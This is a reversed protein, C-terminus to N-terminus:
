LLLLERREEGGGAKMAPWLPLSFWLVAAGVVVVRPM